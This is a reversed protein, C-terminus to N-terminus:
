YRARGHDTRSSWTRPPGRACPRPADQEHLRRPPRGDPAATLIGANVAPRCVQDSTAVTTLTRGSGFAVRRHAGERGWGVPSWLKRSAARQRRELLKKPVGADDRRLPVRLEGVLRHHPFRLPELARQAR